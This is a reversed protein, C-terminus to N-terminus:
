NALGGVIGSLGAGFPGALLPALMVLIQPLKAAPSLTLGREKLWEGADFEPNERLSSPIGALAKRSLWVTVPIYFAAIMLTFNAGWYLSAGLAQKEVLSRIAEDEIMAAPWRLWAYMHLVGVVLLASGFNLLERYERLLRRIRRLEGSAPVGGSPPALICCGTMIAVVPVVVAFVNIVAVLTSIAGLPFPPFVHATALSRFTFFFIASLSTETRASVVLQAIGAAAILAGVVLFRRLCPGAVSRHTAAAFALLCGLFVVLYILATTGWVLRAEAERLRTEIRWVGPEPLYPLIARGTASLDFAVFEFLTSAILLVLLPAAAPAFCGLEHRQLPESRAGPIAATRADAAEEPM